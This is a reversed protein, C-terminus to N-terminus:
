WIGLYHFTQAHEKRSKQQSVNKKGTVGKKQRGECGLHLREQGESLRTESNINMACLFFNECYHSRPM